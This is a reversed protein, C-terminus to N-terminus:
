RKLTASALLKGDVHVRVTLRGRRAPATIAKTGNAVFTTTYAKKGGGSVKVAVKCPAACTVRGVSIRGKGRLARGRLTVTPPAVARVVPTPSSPATVPGYPGSTRNAGPVASYFPLYHHGAHSRTVFLHRGLHEPSLPEGAPLLDCQLGDAARCSLLQTSTLGAWGGAWAGPEVAVTTGIVFAGSLTPPSLDVYRGEWVTSAWTDSGGHSWEITNEFYTGAPTPGPRLEYGTEDRTVCTGGVTCQRWTVPQSTANIWSYLVPEGNADVAAFPAVPSAHAAPSAAVLLGICLGLVSRM